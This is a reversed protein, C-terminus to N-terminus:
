TQPLAVAVVAFGYKPDANVAVADILAFGQDFVCGFPSM